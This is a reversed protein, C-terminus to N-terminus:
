KMSSGVACNPLTGHLLTTCLGSCFAPPVRGRLYKTHHGDYQTCISLVGHLGLGQGGWISLKPSRQADVVSLVSCTLGRRTGGFYETQHGYYHSYTGLVRPAWLISRQSYQIAGPVEPVRKRFVGAHYMSCRCFASSVSPILSVSPSFYEIKVSCTPTWQRHYYELSGPDDVGSYERRDM